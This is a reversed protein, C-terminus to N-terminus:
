TNTYWSGTNVSFHPQCSCDVRQGLQTDNLIVNIHEMCRESVQRSHLCVHMEM